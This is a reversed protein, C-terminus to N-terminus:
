LTLVKGIPGDGWVGGTYNLLVKIYSKRQEAIRCGFSVTVVRFVTNPYGQFETGLGCFSM